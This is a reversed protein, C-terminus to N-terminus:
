FDNRAIKPLQQNTVQKFVTKFNVREALELSSAWTGLQVIGVKLGLDMLMPQIPKESSTQLARVSEQTVKKWSFTCKIKGSMELTQALRTWGAVCSTATQKDSHLPSSLSPKLNCKGRWVTSKLNGFCNRLVLCISTTSIEPLRSPCRPSPTTQQDTIFCIM